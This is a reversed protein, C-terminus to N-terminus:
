TDRIHAAKHDWAGAFDADVYVELNKDRQPRLILGKDRTGKLYRALWRIAAGHEKRPDTTYRACQHTIFAIDPRTSKELFNLKGIISRYHFSEDFRESEKHFSLIRSSAAPTSKVKLDKGNMKLDMLIKDILHPQTLHITGDDKRDINVGLFDELTGEVTVDLGAKKISEVVDAVEKESPGAIISDDTYLAYIVNGKYFLCEDVQSQEFGVEKILKSALYQNWVRGAQKQGYINKHIHLAYDTPDGSDMTFGKPIAMYLEREVPAQPFALVYDLQLTHWKHMAVMTLLLRISRWSTVPAYTEEYDVGRKMRSGDLNLRAKYKKVEQTKIDRKRRMQWVAPFIRQNPPLNSRHVITFNGNNLQDEVEKKMAEQFRERDPEKMAQHWYMTDPDAVAKFAMPIEYSEIERQGHPILAEFGFLEQHDIVENADISEGMVNPNDPNKPRDDNSINNADNDRSEKAANRRERRMDRELNSMRMKERNMEMEVKARKAERQARSGDEPRKDNSTTGTGNQRHHSHDRSIFGARLQWNSGLDGDKASDFASDYSVHFQPSVLGSERDLVLAVNRAHHPSRGLYIGIRSRERWKHYPKGTQLDSDLVYIPCGFTHWHKSNIVVEIKTFM